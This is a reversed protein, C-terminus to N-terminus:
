EAPRITSRADPTLCQLRRLKDQIDQLCQGADRRQLDQIAFDLRHARGPRGAALPDTAGALGTRKLHLVKLHGSFVPSLGKRLLRLDHDLDDFQTPSFRIDFGGAELLTQTRFLHCCGTVSACPRLYDFQGLDPEQLHLHSVEIRRPATEPRLHLDVSQLTGPSHADVVKCGWVGAHPYARVAAGFRGLWDKPVLADDDLFAVFERSQVEPRAVLWNRAAPAGINVPTDIPTVRDPGVKDRWKEIRRSTEPDGGNNLILICADDLDSKLLRDLAADLERPKCHTYLLVAAGGPLPSLDQDIWCAADHLRLLLNTHWPRQRLTRLWLMLAQDRRGTRYLCEAERIRYTPLPRYESAWNYHDAAREYDRHLLFLDGLLMHRVPETPEPWPRDLFLEAWDAKRDNRGVDLALRILAYDHPDQELGSQIRLRAAHSDGRQCLRRIREVEGASPEKDSLSDLTRRLGPDLQTSSKDMALLQGALTVDLPDSEWAAQLMELGLEALEEGTEAAALAQSAMGALHVKGTAGHYLNALLADPLTEAYREWHTQM